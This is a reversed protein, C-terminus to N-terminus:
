QEDGVEGTNGAILERLQEIEAAQSALQEKLQEIEEAQTDQESGVEQVSQQLESVSQQQSILQEKLQEMEEAQTNQGIGITQLTQQLDLLAQQLANVQEIQVQNGIRYAGGATDYYICDVMTGDFNMARMTISSGNFIVEACIGNTDTEPVINTETEEENMLLAAPTTESISKSELTVTFGNGSLNVGNYSIGSELYEKNANKDRNTLYPYEQSAEKSNPASITCRYDVGLKYNMSYIVSCVRDGIKVRDGLEAAPDFCAQSATYPDYVIGEMAQYLVNCIAQSAYPNNEISIEFGRDDGVTYCNGNNDTMTVKSAILRKGTTISGIVAPVHILGGVSAVGDENAWVLYFGDATVINNYKTDTIHYSQQILSSVTDGSLITRTDKTDNVVKWSLKDGKATIIDEYDADLVHCTDAPSSVLPVLLLSGEETITWNGGHCAGIYGLVQQMTLGEPWPVVYDTGTCIRTRSDIPAGIRYAIEAVVDSMTKPWDDKNDSDSVMAQSTKLMADYCTLTILDDNRERQDIFYEGFNMYESAQTMDLNMLRAKIIIPYGEPIEDDTLISVQMTAANCNGVSFPSSMLVREIEPASIKKYETTGIVAKVDICFRGRAALKTWIKSRHRM